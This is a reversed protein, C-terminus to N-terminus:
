SVTIIAGDYTIRGYNQPIPNIVINNLLVRRGTPIVQEQASPTFVYEGEYEPFYAGGKYVSVGIDKIGRDVSIRVDPSARSVGIRIDLESM